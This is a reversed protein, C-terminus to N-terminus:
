AFARQGKVEGKAFWDLSIEECLFWDDGIDARHIIDSEAMMSIAEQTSGPRKEGDTLNADVRDLEEQDV